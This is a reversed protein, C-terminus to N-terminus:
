LRNCLDFYDEAVKGRLTKAIASLDSKDTIGNGNVASWNDGFAIPFLDKPNGNYNAEFITCNDKLESYKESDNYTFISLEQNCHNVTSACTWVESNYSSSFEPQTTCLGSAAIKSTVEAATLTSRDSLGWKLGGAVVAIALVGVAVFIWRKAGPKRGVASDSLKIPEPASPGWGLGDWYRQSGPENPDPYWGANADPAQKTADSKPTPTPTPPLASGVTGWTSGDWYRLQGPNEPDPYMGAPVGATSESMSKGWIQCCGQCCGSDCFVQVAM